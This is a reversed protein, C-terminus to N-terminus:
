AAREESSPSPLSATMRSPGEDSRVRSTETLKVSPRNLAPHRDPSPWGIRAAFERKDEIYRIESGASEVYAMHV